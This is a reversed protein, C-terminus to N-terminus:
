DIVKDSDRCDVWHNWAVRKWDIMIQHDILVMLIITFRFISLVGGGM